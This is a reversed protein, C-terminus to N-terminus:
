QKPGENPGLGVLSTVHHFISEPVYLTWKSNKFDLIELIKLNSHFVSSLNSM